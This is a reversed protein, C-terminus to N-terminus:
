LRAFVLILKDATLLYHTWSRDEKCQLDGPDAREVYHVSVRLPPAEPPM